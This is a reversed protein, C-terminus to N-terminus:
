GKLKRTTAKALTNYLSNFRTMTMLSDLQDALETQADGTQRLNTQKIATSCTIM